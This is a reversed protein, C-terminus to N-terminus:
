KSIIKTAFLMLDSTPVKIILDKATPRMYVQYVKPNFRVIKSYDVKDYLLFKIRNKSVIIWSNFTEFAFYKAKGNLWGKEGNRNQYEIWHFRDNLPGSRTEGKVGKVDFGINNWYLDIHDFMDVKKSPYTITGGFNDILIQAFEKEKQKGVKLFSTM